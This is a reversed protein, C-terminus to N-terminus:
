IEGKREKAYYRLASLLVKCGDQNLKYYNDASFDAKLANEENSLMASIDIFDGGNSTCVKELEENYLKIKENNITKMYTAKSSIPPSSLVVVSIDNFSRKLNLVLKGMDSAAKIHCNEEDGYVPLDNVVSFCLVVIKVGTERVAEEITLKARKEGEGMYPHTSSSSTPIYNNEYIGFNTNYFFTTKELLMPSERRWYSLSDFFDSMPANGVFLCNEFVTDYPSPSLACEGNEPAFVQGVAISDM